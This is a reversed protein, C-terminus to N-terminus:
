SFLSNFVNAMIGNHQEILQIAEERDIPITEMLLNISAEDINSHAAQNLSIDRNSNSRTNSLSPIARSTTQLPEHPRESHLNTNSSRLNIEEDRRQQEQIIEFSRSSQKKAHSFTNTSKSSDQFLKSYNLMNLVSLFVFIYLLYFYKSKM